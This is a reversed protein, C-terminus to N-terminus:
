KAIIEVIRKAAKGDWFTPCNEKKGGNELIKMAEEIIKDKENWVLTNTGQTLTIPRETTNRLTLCPINLATTEEQIGGSDTIVFKTHMELNLFNVSKNYKNIARIIPAIKMFNPRAGVVSVIKM